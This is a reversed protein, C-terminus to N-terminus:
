GHYKGSIHFLGVFDHLSLTASEYGTLPCNPTGTFPVSRLNDKESEFSIVQNQVILSQSRFSPCYKCTIKM